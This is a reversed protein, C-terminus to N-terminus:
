KQNELFKIVMENSLVMEVYAKVRETDADKYQDTLAKIEKEMDSKSPELKEELSIKQLVIQIKARKEADPRWETRLDSWTKKIHKLYDEPQLGMGAIDSKFQGEMKDLENEVLVKPMDIKSEEVIKEIIKIRKKDKAKVEKEKAINEKLKVKFDAVGKFNGLKKVFEDNLEPLALEEDDHHVEGEKHTHNQQAYMRKIEEITEDIQKETVEEAKEEKGNEKKAIKKYDGLKIEPMITIKIKFEIPFGIAIKTIAIDPRGLFNIKSEVIIEAVCDNIAMEGADELIGIEGVKEKLKADPVHGKRFGPLEAVEKIKKFAKEKYKELHGESIEALIEVESDPLKKIDKIKYIKTM